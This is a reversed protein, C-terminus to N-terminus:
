PSACPRLRDLLQDGVHRDDVGLLDRAAARLAEGLQQLALGPTSIMMFPPGPEVDPTNMRPAFRPWVSSSISPRRTDDALTPAGDSSATGSSWISRM